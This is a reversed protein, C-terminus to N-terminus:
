KVVRQDKPMQSLATLVQQKALRDLAFIKRMGAKNIYIACYVIGFGPVEYFGSKDISKAIWWRDQEARDGTAKENRISYRGLERGCGENRGTEPNFGIFSKVQDDTFNIRKIKTHERAQRVTESASQHIGAKATVKEELKSVLESNKSELVAKEAELEALRARLVAVENTNNSNKSM